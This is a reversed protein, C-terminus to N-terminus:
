RQAFSALMDAGGPQQQMMTGLMSYMQAMNDKNSMMSTAFQNLDAMNINEAVEQGLTQVNLDAMSMEGTEIKSAIGTAMGEITTLMSTPVKTYIDYMNAYQNLCTLYEWVSAKTDVHLDATWKTYFQIKGIFPMRAQAAQDLMLTEDKQTCLTYYPQMHKHYASIFKIRAEQRVIEPAQICAMEYELKLKSTASCDSWVEAVAELFQHLYQHFIDLSQATMPNHTPAAPPPTPPAPSAPLALDSAAEAQSMSEGRTM